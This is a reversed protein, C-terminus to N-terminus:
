EKLHARKFDIIGLSTIFEGRLYGKKLFAYNMFYLPIIPMEEILLKEARALLSARKKSNLEKQAQELYWIYESNEWGTENTGNRYKFPELFSLPDNFDGIWGIRGIQYDQSNIKSLYVKWDFAELNVPIDLAEKWQHQIAQAIKQHDRSTNYSLTLPPMKKLGMEELGKAFLKRAEEVDGDKFFSNVQWGPIPPVLACAPQQGGQTVHNVIAHRNISLGLAQRIKINKLVPDDTNIKFYYVGSSPVFSVKGEEKLNPLFDPPLTSLPAGAWDIENMEFMYFETTTDDIMALNIENLKVSKSDWYGPNKKVTIENEHEWKKLCFPGNSIFSPGSDAAWNPTKIDIKKNVPFFSPFATLELFYPTPHNLTIELTKEDKVRIGLDELSRTGAKVEAANKIVFLKYAFLSPFNPELMKRWSYAFDEATVPDGNCWYSDRLTFTYTCQDKSLAIKKAAAPHPKQDSEFRTLGEFLMILVNASTSDTFKRPDLSPPESHLNLRLRQDKLHKTNGSCGVILLTLLLPTIKESFTHSIRSLMDLSYRFQLVSALFLRYHM